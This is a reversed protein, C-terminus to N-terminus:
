QQIAFCFISQVSFVSVLSFVCFFSLLCVSCVAHFSPQHLDCCLCLFVCPKFMHHSHCYLKRSNKFGQFSQATLKAANPPILLSYPGQKKQQCDCSLYSSTILFQFGCIGTGCQRSQTQCIVHYAENLGTERMKCVKRKADNQYNM